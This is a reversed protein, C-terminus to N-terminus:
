VALAARAKSANLRSSLLAFTMTEEFFTMEVKRRLADYM